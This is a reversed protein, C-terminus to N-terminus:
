RRGAARRQGVVLGAVVAAAFAVVTELYLAAMGTTWGDIGGGRLYMVLTTEYSAALFLGAVAGVAAGLACTARDCRLGWAVVCAVTGVLLGHLAGTPLAALGGDIAWAGAGLLGLSGALLAVPRWRPLLGALLAALGPWAAPQLFSGYPDPVPRWSPLALWAVACVLALVAAAALSRRFKALTLFVAVIAAAPLLVFQFATPPIGRAAPVDLSPLIEFRSLLFLTAAILVCAVAVGARQKM